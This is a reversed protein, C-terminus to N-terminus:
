RVVRSLNFLSFPIIFQRPSYELGDEIKAPISDGPKLVGEAFWEELGDQRLRKALPLVM